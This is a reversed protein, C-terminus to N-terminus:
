GSRIAFPFLYIVPMRGLMKLSNIAPIHVYQDFCADQWQQHPGQRVSRPFSLVIIIAYVAPDSFMEACVVLLAISSGDSSIIGSPAVLRNQPM